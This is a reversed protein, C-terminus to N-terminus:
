YLYFLACWVVSTNFNKAARTHTHKRTVSKGTIFAFLIGSSMFNWHDKWWFLHCCFCRRRLLFLWLFSMNICPSSSRNYTDLIQMRLKIHKRMSNIWTARIWSSTISTIPMIQNKWDVKIIKLKRGVFSFHFKQWKITKMRWNRDFDVMDEGRRPKPPPPCLTLALLFWNFPLLSWVPESMTCSCWIQRWVLHCNHWKCM